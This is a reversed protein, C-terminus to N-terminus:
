WCFIRIKSSFLSQYNVTTYEEFVFIGIQKLIQRIKFITEEPATSKYEKIRQPKQITDIEKQM